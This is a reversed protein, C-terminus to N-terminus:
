TIIYVYQQLNYMLTSRTIITHNIHMLGNLGVNKQNHCFILIGFYPEFSVTLAASVSVVISSASRYRYEIGIGISATVQNLTLQRRSFLM